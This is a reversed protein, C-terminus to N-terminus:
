KSELEMVIGPYEKELTESLMSFASPTCGYSAVPEDDKTVVIVTFDPYRRCHGVYVAKEPQNLLRTMVYNRVVNKVDDSAPDGQRVYDLVTRLIEHEPTSGTERLVEFVYELHVPNVDQPFLCHMIYASIYRDIIKM